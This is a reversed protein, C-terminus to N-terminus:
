YKQLSVLMKQNKNLGSGDSVNLLNTTYIKITEEDGDKFYFQFDSDTLTNLYEEVSIRKKIDISIKNTVRMGIVYKLGRVKVDQILFDAYLGADAMFLWIKVLFHGWEKKKTIGSYHCNAKEMHKGTKHLLTPDCIVIGKGLNCM